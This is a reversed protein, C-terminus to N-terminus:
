GTCICGGSFTQQIGKMILSIRNREVDIDMVKIKIMNGVQLADMSYRIYTM